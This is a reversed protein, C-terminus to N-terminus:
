ANQNADGSITVVPKICVISHIIIDPSEVKLLSRAVYASPASIVKFEMRGHKSKRTNCKYTNNPPPVLSSAEIWDKLLNKSHASLLWKESRESLGRISIQKPRGIRARAM